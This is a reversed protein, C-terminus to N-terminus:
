NQVTRGNRWSEVNRYWASKFMPDRQLVLDNDSFPSEKRTFTFTLSMLNNEEGYTWTEGTPSKRIMNPTGFIIHVLGRDTRWGEVTSTFHRNANEVRNYYAEIADRAREREGAADLWFKEVEKRKEPTVTLRDWEQQSTIYRLPPVMDGAIQVGPWTSRASMLSYGFTNATDIRFHYFGSAPANVEFFGDENVLMNFTSDFQPEPRTTLADSFVPSPLKEPTTYHDVSLTRGAFQECVVRVPTGPKFHDAFYPLGRMDM